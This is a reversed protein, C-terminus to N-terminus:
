RGMKSEESYNEVSFGPRGPCRAPLLESKGHSTSQESSFIFSIHVYTYYLSFLFRLAHLTKILQPYNLPINQVCLIDICISYTYVYIYWICRHICICYLWYYIYIYIHGNISHCWWSRGASTNPWHSRQLRDLFPFVFLICSVTSNYVLTKKQFQSPYVM